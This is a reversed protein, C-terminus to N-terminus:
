YFPMKSSGPVITSSLAGICVCATYYRELEEKGAFNSLSFAKSYQVRPQPPQADHGALYVGDRLLPSELPV